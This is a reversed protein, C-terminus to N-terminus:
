RSCPQHAYGSSFYIHTSWSQPTIHVETFTYQLDFSLFAFPITCVRMCKEVGEEFIHTTGDDNVHKYFCDRGFPCLPKTSKTEQFYRRYVPLLHDTYTCCNELTCSVPMTSAGHQSQIERNSSGKRSFQASPFAILPHRLPITFPLTSV